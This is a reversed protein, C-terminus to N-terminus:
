SVPAPSYPFPPKYDARNTTELHRKDHDAHHRPLVSGFGRQPCGTDRDINAHQYTDVTVMPKRSEQEEFDKKLHIQEM